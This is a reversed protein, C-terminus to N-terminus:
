LLEQKKLMAPYLEDGVWMYDPEISLIKEYCHKAKIIQNTAEYALGLLTMTNLYLWNNKTLQKKEMCKIAKQYYSIAEMKDGGFTSPCYYSSNGKEILAQINSPEIELAKEIYNAIKRGLFMAKFNSMAVEFATFAGMYAMATAHNSDHKLIEDLIEESRNIYLRAIDYKEEGILWGTYGYYYNVLELKKEYTANDPNAEFANMAGVWKTMNGTAYAEYIQEVASVQPFGSRISLLICGALLILRTIYKQREM